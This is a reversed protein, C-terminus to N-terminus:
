SLRSLLGLVWSLPGDGIIVADFAAEFKPALAAFRDPNTENLFGIKIVHRAGLGDAMAADGLSDGLLMVTHREDARLTSWRAVGLQERIFAGNKNFMHLLPESFSCVKGSTDFHLGAFALTGAVFRNAMLM